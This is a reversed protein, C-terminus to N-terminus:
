REEDAAPGRYQKLISVFKSVEDIDKKGPYIELKSSADVGFPKAINVAQRVNEGDLGGSLIVPIEGSYNGAVSWDFARGTGGYADKSYSDLLIFDVLGELRKIEENLKAEYPPSSRKIRISKIVKLSEKGSSLGKLYNTDEDGSLQIYDLKLYRCDKLVDQVEENVFVGVMSIRNGEKERVAGIIEKARTVSVRRPSDTSLIFGMADIDLGSIRGADEPSTIGCIKIWVM